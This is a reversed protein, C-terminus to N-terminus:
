ATAAALKERRLGITSELIWDLQDAEFPAACYDTAGADMADLWDNVEPVRSVVVVPSGLNKLLNRLDPSHTECFVLDFHPPTSDTPQSQTVAVGRSALYRHLEEALAPEIGALLVRKGPSSM